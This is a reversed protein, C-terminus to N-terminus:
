IIIKTEIKWYWNRSCLFFFLAVALTRYRCNLPTIHKEGRPPGGSQCFLLCEYKHQGVLRTPMILVYILRNVVFFKVSFFVTVCLSCAIKHLVSVDADISLFICNSLIPFFLFFSSRCPWTSRTCYVSMVFINHNSFKWFLANLLKVFCTKNVLFRAKGLVPLRFPLSTRCTSIIIIQNRKIKEKKKKENRRGNDPVRDVIRM